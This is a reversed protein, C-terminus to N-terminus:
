AKDVGAVCVSIKVVVAALALSSFADDALGGIATEQRRPYARGRWNQVAAQCSCVALAAHVPQEEPEYYAQGACARCLTLEGLFVERENM